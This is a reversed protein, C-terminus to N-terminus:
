SRWATTFKAKYIKLLYSHNLKEETHSSCLQKGIDRTPRPLTEVVEVARKHAPSCKHSAFGRKEGSADKWNLYGHIVFAKDINGDPKMEGPKLATNCLFVFHETVVATM